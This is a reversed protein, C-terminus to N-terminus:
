VNLGRELGSTEVLVRTRLAAQWKEFKSDFSLAAHAPSTSPLVVRPIGAAGQSLTPLVHRRFLGDAKAGNFCLLEIAAHSRLFDGIQNPRVTDHQIAADASGKRSAGECVDWLAIGRAMLIRIREEYPRAPGAGVLDGMIKWFVNRPQAYYQGCALSAAGPLTGLVLVRADPRALAAFGLTLTTPEADDDV